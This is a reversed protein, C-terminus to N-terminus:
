ALRKALEYAANIRQMVAISGGLDPHYRKALRARAARANAVTATPPIGLVEHWALSPVRTLAGATVTELANALALAYQPVQYRGRCWHNVAMSTVDAMQAFAAQTVNRRRLLAAFETHAVLSSM